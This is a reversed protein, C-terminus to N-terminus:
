SYGRLMWKLKTNAQYRMADMAHDNEKVVQDKIAKDDWCYLQIEKLTNTCRDSIKISGDHLMQDTVQIGELVDNDADRVTFRGHRYVEEKFSTASPDVIIAEINYGKAFNEVAEYHEADTRRRGQDKSAFYYEDVIYATDPTVRWLLCAFPNTIGYDISLYWEGGGHTEKTNGYQDKVTRHGLAEDYSCTYESSSEFQYVLGEAIVWLGRIYRDYFVGHYQRKYREIVRDSLSPNDELQFELVLANKEKAELIWENYFWHHPSDPNCNFWMKSGDVSCRALAQNVFSQPMLAVEDLFVGALTRGQILTYSAEDKGGFVEFVNTVSGRKVTLLKTSRSFSAKYRNQTRSMAIYPTVVNEIASNVTKGCIGFKRGNFNDMAWDVFAVTMLSSKGSRVAGSCILADYETYGFALIKKQKDSIMRENYCSAGM